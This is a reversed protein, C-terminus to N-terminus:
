KTVITVSQNVQPQTTDADQLRWGPAARADERFFFHFAFPRRASPVRKGIGVLVETHRNRVVAIAVFSAVTFIRWLGLGAGGMTEDVEVQMDTRACRMLVEILRARSLSGFPDRVRVVALDDRCGYVMDCASDEPLRVDRTRSIPQTVGAAAPADYFANTLLEEAADRLQQVTREGVGRSELYATLRELREVRKSARALRVRRGNITPGLWDLLRPPRNSTLTAIVNRLHEAAIPHRLMGSSMVHSLWPHAAVWGITNQLPEDFITIVPGIQDVRVGSELAARNFDGLVVQDIISVTKADRKAAFFESASSAVVVESPLLDRLARSLPESTWVISRM